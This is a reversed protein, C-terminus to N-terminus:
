YYATNIHFTDSLPSSEIKSDLKKEVFSKELFSFLNLITEWLYNECPFDNKPFMAMLLYRM